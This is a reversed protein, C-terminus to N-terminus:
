SLLTALGESLKGYLLGADTLVNEICAVSIARALKNLPIQFANQLIESFQLFSQVVSFIHVSVVRPLHSEVVLSWDRRPGLVSM